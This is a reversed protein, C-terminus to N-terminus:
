LGDCLFQGVLRKIDDIDQEFFWRMWDYSVRDFM